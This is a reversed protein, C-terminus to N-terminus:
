HCFTSLKNYVIITHKSVVKGKKPHEKEYDAIKLSETPIKYYDEDRQTLNIQDIREIADNIDQVNYSNGIIFDSEIFTNM